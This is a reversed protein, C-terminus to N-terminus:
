QDLSADMRSLLPLPDLLAVQASSPHLRARSLQLRGIVNGICPSGQGSPYGNGQVSM